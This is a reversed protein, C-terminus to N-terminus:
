EVRLRYTEWSVGGRDDRIVAWLKVDGDKTPATWTTETKPEDPDNEAVGTRREVFEGATAYWSVIVAERRPKVERAETDYWVYTESGTCALPTTCDDACGNKDEGESCLGDGCEAKRPCREWEARLTVARGRRVTTSPEDAGPALETADDGRTLTLTSVAPNGNPRHNARYEIGAERPAVPLGCDLRVAGLAPTNGIFAVVPQYFGGTPDPDVARGGKPDGEKPPPAIPGFLNCVNRDTTFTASDGTGVAVRTPDGEPVRELCTQNVPGLETLPKRDLCAQWSIEPSDVGDASAVLADLTAAANAGVEGPTVRIALVRPESVRSLDDDVDPVCASTACAAFALSVFKSKM